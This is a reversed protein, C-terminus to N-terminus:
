CCAPIWPRVADVARLRLELDAYDRAQALYADRERREAREARRELAQALNTLFPRKLM